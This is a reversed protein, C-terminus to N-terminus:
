RRYFHTGQDVLRIAHRLADTLRVMLLRTNGIKDQKLLDDEMLAQKLVPFNRRQIAERNFVYVKLRQERGDENIMLAELSEPHYVPVPASDKFRHELYHIFTFVDFGVDFFLVKTDMELMKEFPSGPGCSYSLQDHGSIVWSTKPGMALVPHLPNASRLVGRRKRFIESIIGMRSVTKRVDFPKGAKLYDHSSGTYALSMMFLHGGPGVVNLLCDIVQGPNGQFGNFRSFSSHMLVADDQAIGLARFKAELQAPTYSAVGRIVRAKIQSYAAKLERKQTRTLYRSLLTAVM